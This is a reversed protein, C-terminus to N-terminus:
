LNRESEDWVAGLYLYVHWGLTRGCPLSPFRLGGKGGRTPEAFVVGGFGKRVGALPSPPLSAWLVSPCPDAGWQWVGALCRAMPMVHGRRGLLPLFFPPQPGPLPRTACPQAAAAPARMCEGPEAPTATQM